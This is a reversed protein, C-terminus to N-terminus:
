PKRAEQGVDPAEAAAAEEDTALEVTVRVARM